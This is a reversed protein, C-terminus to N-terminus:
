DEVLIQKYIIREKSHAKKAIIKITNLGTRLSITEQFHGEKDTIIVQGNILVQTDAEVSGSIIVSHEKTTMQDPLNDVVLDPPQIFNSVEYILYSSLAVLVFVILLVIIVRPIVLAKHSYKMPPSAPHKEKYIIMEKALLREMTFWNLHLFESYKKLYNKIFLPSPLQNYQGSELCHLYEKKIKIQHAIQELSFGFNKRTRRLKDGITQNSLIQKSVFDAM